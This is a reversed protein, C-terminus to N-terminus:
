GGEKLEACCYRALRTPPMLKRPILKWMTEKPYHVFGKEGYQTVRCGDEDIYHKKEGYQSMVKRIYRVTEPADVTTHNNHLEYDVGSLDMLIRIVDSDKGGSYCVYYPETSPAFFRIVEIARDIKEQLIHRM